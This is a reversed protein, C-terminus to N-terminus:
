EPGPWKGAARVTVLLLHRHWPDLCSISARPGWHIQHM